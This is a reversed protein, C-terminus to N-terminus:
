EELARCAIDYAIFDKAKAGYMNEHRVNERLIQVAHKIKDIASM